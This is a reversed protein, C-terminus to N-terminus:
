FANPTASERGGAPPAAPTEIPLFLWHEGLGIGGAQAESLPQDLGILGDNGVAPAPLCEHLRRALSGVM